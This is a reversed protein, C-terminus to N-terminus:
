HLLGAGPRRGLAAGLLAGFLAHGTTASAFARPSHALPPWTGDRRKPHIRDFIAVGPWLLSNEVVAATVGARISRGGFREFLHGFVAGGAAHIVLNALPELPGRTVFPGLLEADAYPTGFTRKLLPDCAQWVAAAAAGAVAGRLPV